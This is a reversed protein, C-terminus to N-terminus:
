EEDQTTDIIGTQADSALLNQRFVGPALWPALGWFVYTRSDFQSPNLHAFVFTGSIRYKPSEGDPHADVMTPEYWEDLLVFNTDLVNVDPVAPPKGSKKASWDSVWILTDNKIQVVAVSGLGDAGGPSTTGEVYRGKDREFRNVVLYDTWVSPTVPDDQGLYSTTGTVAIKGVTVSLWGPNPSGPSLPPFTGHGPNNPTTPPIPLTM